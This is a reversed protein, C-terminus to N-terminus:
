RMMLEQLFCETFVEYALVSGSISAVPRSLLDCVLRVSSHYLGAAVTLGDVRVELQTKSEKMAAPEVFANQADPDVRVSNMTSLEIM